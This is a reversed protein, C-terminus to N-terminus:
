GLKRLHVQGLQELGPPPKMKDLGPPAEMVAWHQLIHEALEDLEPESDSSSAGASTSGASSPCRHKESGVSSGGGDDDSDSDSDIDDYDDLLTQLAACTWPTGSAVSVCFPMFDAALAEPVFEPADAKFVPPVFEPADASFLSPVFEAAYKQSPVFETATADLCAGPKQSFIDARSGKVVSAWSRLPAAVGITPSSTSCTSSSM